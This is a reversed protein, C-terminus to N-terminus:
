PPMVRPPPQKEFKPEPPSFIYWAGWWLLALALVVAFARPANVAVFMMLTALLAVAVFVM